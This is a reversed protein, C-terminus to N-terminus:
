MKIKNQYMDKLVKIIKNNSNVEHESIVELIEGNDFWFGHGKSCEDLVTNKDNSVLTKEMKTRCIPCKKKKERSNIGKQFSNLLETKDSSDTLFLELEGADLWIGKCNTCFDTEIEEFEIVILPNNCNPCKM